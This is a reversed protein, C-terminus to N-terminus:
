AARRDDSVATTIKSGRALGEQRRLRGSDEALKGEPPNRAPVVRMGRDDWTLV